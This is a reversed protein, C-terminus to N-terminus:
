AWISFFLKFYSILVIINIVINIIICSRGAVHKGLRRRGNWNDPTGFDNMVYMNKLSDRRAPNYNPSTPVSDAIMGSFMETSHERM